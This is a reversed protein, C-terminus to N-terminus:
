LFTKFFEGLFSMICYSHKNVHNHSEPLSSSQVFCYILSLTLVMFSWPSGQQHGTDKTPQLGTVKDISPATKKTDPKFGLPVSSPTSSFSLTSLMPLCQSCHLCPLECHWHSVMVADAWWKTFLPTNNRYTAIILRVVCHFRIASTMRFHTCFRTSHLLGSRNGLDQGGMFLYGYWYVSLFHANPHASCSMLLTLLWM